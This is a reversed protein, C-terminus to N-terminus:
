KANRTQLSRILDETQEAIDRQMAEFSYDPPVDLGCYLLGELIAKTPHTKPRTMLESAKCLLQNRTLQRGANFIQRAAEESIGPFTQKTKVWFNTFHHDSM